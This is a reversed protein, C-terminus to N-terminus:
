PLVPLPIKSLSTLAPHANPLPHEGLVPEVYWGRHGGSQAASHGWLEDQPGGLILLLSRAATDGNLRGLYGRSMLLSPVGPHSKLLSGNGDGLLVTFGGPQGPCGAVPAAGRRDLDACVRGRGPTRQLVTMRDVQVQSESLGLPMGYQFCGNAAKDVSFECGGWAPWTFSPRQSVSFVEGQVTRVASTASDVRHLFRKNVLLWPSWLTVPFVTM